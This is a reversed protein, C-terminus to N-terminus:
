TTEKWEGATRVWPRAVKWVGGDRVYPIADYWTTGVKVSAGAITRIDSVASWASWGIANQARVWFYYRVAPSLGSINKTTEVTTSSFSSPSSSSTGYGVQVGTIPTGGDSNLTYSVTVGVQTLNSFSAVSPADPVKFTTAESRASWASWGQSNHNAAWFYYKTGPTLGTVDTNNSDVGFERIKSPDTSYGISWADIAAGNNGNDSFQAHIKTDSIVTLVPANPTQPFSSRNIAIPGLTTPGGFGSTGSNGISFTVNQNYTVGWVGLRNWGSNAHYYYSGGVGVGNVTGSWPLHDTWTSSNNANIWFEITSGTDRIMMTASSGTSRTYDTM